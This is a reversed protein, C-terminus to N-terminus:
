STGEAALLLWVFTEYGATDSAGTAVLSYRTPTEQTPNEFWDVTLSFEGSGSGVLEQGGVIAARMTQQFSYLSCKPDGSLPAAYIEASVSNGGAFSGSISFGGPGVPFSPIGGFGGSTAVVSGSSEHGRKQWEGWSGMSTTSTSAPSGSIFTPRDGGQLRIWENDVDWVWVPVRNWASDGFVEPGPGWQLSASQLYSDDRPAPVPETDGSCDVEVGVGVVSAFVRYCLYLPATPLPDNSWNVNIIDQAPDLRVPDSLNGPM